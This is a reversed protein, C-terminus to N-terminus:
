RLQFAIFCNPFSKTKMINVNRLFTVYIINLYFNSKDKLVNYLIITILLTKTKKKEVFIVQMKNGICPHYKSLYPTKYKLAYNVHTSMLVPCVPKFMDTL